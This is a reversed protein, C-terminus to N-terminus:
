MNKIRQKTWEASRKMRNREELPLRLFIAQREQPSRPTPSLGKLRLQEDKEDELRLWELYADEDLSLQCDTEFIPGQKPIEKRGVVERLAASFKDCEELDEKSLIPKIYSPANSPVERYLKTRIHAVTPMRDVEKLTIRCASEIQQPTLDKLGEIYGVM